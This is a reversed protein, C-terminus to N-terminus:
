FERWARSAIVRRNEDMLDLLDAVAAVPQLEYRNSEEETEVLFLIDPQANRAKRGRKKPQGNGPPRGRRAPPEAPAGPVLAVAPKGVPKAEAGAVRQEASKPAPAPATAATSDGGSPRATQSKSARAAKAM